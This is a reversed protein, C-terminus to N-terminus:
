RSGYDFVSRESADLLDPDNTHQSRGGAADSLSPPIRVEHRVQQGPRLQPRGGGNVRRAAPTSYVGRVQDRHYEVYEPNSSQEWWELIASGVDPQATLRQILQANERTKDLSILDRYAVNFEYARPGTAAAELNANLRQETEQRQQQQFAGLRETVLAEARQEAKRELYGRYGEPDAFMDPPAEPQQRQQPQPQERPRNVQAVLADIRMQQDRIQQQLLSENERFRERTERLVRPPISPEPREAAQQEQRQPQQDSGPQRQQDLQQEGPQQEGPEDGTAEDDIEEGELGDGMDELSTDADEGIPEDGLAETFVESDTRAIAENIDDNQEREVREAELLDTRAQSQRTDTRPAM